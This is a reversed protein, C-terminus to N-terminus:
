FCRPLDHDIPKRQVEDADIVPTSVRAAQRSGSIVAELARRPVTGMHGEVYFCFAKGSRSPRARGAYGIFVTDDREQVFSVEVEAGRLLKSVDGAAIVLKGLTWSDLGLALAHHDKRVEGCRTFNRQTM